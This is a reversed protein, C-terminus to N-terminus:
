SQFHVSNSNGAQIEQSRTKSSRQIKVFCIIIAICLILIGICIVVILLSTHCEFFAHHVDNVLKDKVSIPSDCVYGNPWQQIELGSKGVEKMEEVFSCSCTYPINDGKFSKLHKFYQLQGGQLNKIPNGDVALVQLLPFKGMNSLASLKNYSLYLERLKYLSLNLFEIENHSLDLVECNQPFSIDVSELRTNSLNLRILSSQWVCSSNPKSFFNNQSLDLHVLQDYKSLIQCVREFSALNNNRLSLTRLSPFSGNCFSSSVDQDQLLNESLDLFSLAQFHLSINCPINRLQSRMVSLNELNSMWNGFGSFASDRQILPHSSMRIFQLSSILPPLGSKTTAFPKGVFTTNEFELLKIPIRHVWNIFISLFEESMVVNVFNIKTVPVRIMGLVQEMEINFTMFDETNIFSGGNFEFSSAHICSIIRMINSLDLHSCYCHKLNKNYACDRDAKTMKQVFLLIIVLSQITKM